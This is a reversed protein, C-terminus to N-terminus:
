HRWRCHPRRACIRLDVRSRLPIHAFPKARSRRPMQGGRQRIAFYCAQLGQPRRARPLLPYGLRNQGNVGPKPRKVPFQERRDCVPSVILAPFTQRIVLAMWERPRRKNPAKRRNNIANGARASFLSFTGSSIPLRFPLGLNDVIGNNRFVDVADALVM